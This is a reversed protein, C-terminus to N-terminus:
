ALLDLLEGLAAEPEPYAGFGGAPHEFLPEQPLKGFRIEGVPEHLPPGSAATPEYLGDESERLGGPAAFSALHVLGIQRVGGGALVALVRGDSAVLIKSVDPPVRVGPALPHGDPDVLRGEVDPAFRGGRAYRLGDPTDIIFFGDGDISLPFGDAPDVPGAARPYGRSAARADGPAEARFAPAAVRRAVADFARVGSPPGVVGVM